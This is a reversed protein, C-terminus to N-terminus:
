CFKFLNTHSSTTVEQQTGGKKQQDNVVSKEAASIFAASGTLLRRHILTNIHGDTFGNGLNISMNEYQLWTFSADM